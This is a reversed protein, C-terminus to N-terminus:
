LGLSAGFDRAGKAMMVRETNLTIIRQGLTEVPGTAAKKGNM